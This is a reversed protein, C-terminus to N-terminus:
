SGTDHTHNTISSVASSAAESLSGLCVCVSVSVADRGSITGRCVAQSVRTATIHMYKILKRRCPDTQETQNAISIKGLEPHLTFLYPNFCTSRYLLYTKLCIDRPSWLNPQLDPYYKTQDIPLPATYVLQANTLLKGRRTWKRRKQM